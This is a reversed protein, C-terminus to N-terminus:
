GHGGGLTRRVRSHRGLIGDGGGDEDLVDFRVHLTLASRLRRELLELAQVGGEFEHLLPQRLLLRLQLDLEGLNLLGVVREHLHLRLGLESLRERAVVLQRLRDKGLGLDIHM